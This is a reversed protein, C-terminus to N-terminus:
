IERVNEAHRSIEQKDAEVQCRLSDSTEHLNDHFQTVLAEIEIDLHARLDSTQANIYALLLLKAGEIALNVEEQLRVEILLNALCQRGEASRLFATFSAKQEADKETKSKLFNVKCEVLGFLYGSRSTTWATGAPAGL